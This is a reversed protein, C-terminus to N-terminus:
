PLLISSEAYLGYHDSPTVAVKSQKGLSAFKDLPTTGIIEISLPKLRIDKKLLVRDPRWAPWGGLPPMTYGPQKTLDNLEAWLDTYSFLINSEEEGGSFNFDGMLASIPFSELVNFCEKLQMARLKASNLSELHVTGVGVKVGGIRTAALLLSRGMNSFGTFPIHYSVFPMKSLIMLGYFAGTLYLESVHYKQVWTEEMLAKYFPTTVEQLCVFDAQKNDLIKRLAQGREEFEFDEFWVNYTLFSIKEKKENNINKQEALDLKWGGNFSLVKIGMYRDRICM